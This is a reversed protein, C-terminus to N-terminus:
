PLVGLFGWYNIKFTYINELRGVREYLVFNRTPLVRLFGTKLLTEERENGCCFVNAALKGAAFNSRVTFRIIYTFGTRSDAPSCNKKVKDYIGHLYCPKILAPFM